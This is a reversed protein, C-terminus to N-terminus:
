GDPDIHPGAEACDFCVWDAPAPATSGGAGAPATRAHVEPAGPVPTLRSWLDGAWQWLQSWPSTTFPIDPAPRGAQAHLVTPALMLATIALICASQKLHSRCM